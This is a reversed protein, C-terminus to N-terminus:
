RGSKKGFLRTLRAVQFAKKANEATFDKFSGRIPNEKLLARDESL